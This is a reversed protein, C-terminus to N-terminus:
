HDQGDKSYLAHSFSSGKGTSTPGILITGHYMTLVTIPIMPTLLVQAAPWAIGGERLDLTYLLM